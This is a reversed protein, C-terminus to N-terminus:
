WSGAELKRSAAAAVASPERELVVIVFFVFSVVRM